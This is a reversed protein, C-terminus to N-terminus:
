RPEWQLSVFVGRGATAYGRATQYDKDALNDIRALLKWQPAIARTAWLNVLGYGGLRQTNAADNFREDVLQLETGLTWGAARTDAALTAMRRPRRPLLQGTSADTPEQLDLSGRLSAWAARWEGAFTLGALRARGTNAYCGAFPGSGAACAGPGPQFTILDAVRNRYGVVSFSAGDARYKLGLERNNAVEPRLTPIGYLSFRQYLTPARYATGASATLGWRPLFQWAWAISGTSQGGFESDYDHRANLQLAHDGARWGWGLALGDQTRQTDTPATTANELRDERRELDLSFRHAGQRWENHLLVSNVRTETLYPSPDTEYRETGRTAALRTSYRDTWQANWALGLTRLDQRSWDDFSSAFGDYRADLANALATAEVRHGPLLRWGLSASGATSDYGDRDPNAAPQANFGASTERSIGLSYDFAGQSGRLSADAKRLRDSGAGVTVSPTFPEGQGRRTFVQIVGAIADSGYVAAAPGRVVEIREIQSLPIANWSAGGTAQSDVRVGDVFLPTFRTEAGRLYLSTTGAVGGNRAFGIGPVRGLLDALGTAGSREIQERDILTVDAVVDTLPQETRTATVVVPALTPTTSATLSPAQALALTSALLPLSAGLWRTRSSFTM